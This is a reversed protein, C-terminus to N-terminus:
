KKVRRTSSFPAADLAGAPFTHIFYGSDTYDHVHNPDRDGPRTSIGSALEDAEEQRVGLDLDARERCGRSCTLREPRDVRVEGGQRVPDELVGGDVGERTVVHHEECERM